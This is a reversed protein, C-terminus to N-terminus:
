LSDKRHTRAAESLILDGLAWLREKLVSEKAAGYMLHTLAIVLQLAQPNARFVDWYDLVRFVGSLHAVADPLTDAVPPLNPDELRVGPGGPMLAAFLATELTAALVAAQPVGGPSGSATQVWEFLPINLAACLHRADVEDRLRFIRQIELLTVFRSAASLIEIPM